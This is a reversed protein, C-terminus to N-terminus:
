YTRGREYSCFDDYGTKATTGIASTGAWRSGNPNNICGRDLSTISPEEDRKREKVVANSPIYLDNYFTIGDLYGMEVWCRITEVGVDFKEAAEGVTLFGIFRGDKFITENELNNSLIYIILDRGTM